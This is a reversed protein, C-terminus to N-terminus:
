YSASYLKTASNIEIFKGYDNRTIQLPIKIILTASINRNECMYGSNRLYIGIKSSIIPKGTYNFCTHNDVSCGHFFYSNGKIMFVESMKVKMTCYAQILPFQIDCVIMLKLPKLCHQIFDGFLSFLRQYVTLKLDHPHNFFTKPSKQTM